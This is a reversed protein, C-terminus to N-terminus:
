ESVEEISAFAKQELRFEIHEIKGTEQNKGVSADKIAYTKGHMAIAYSATLEESDLTPLQEPRVYALWDDTMEAINPSANIDASSGEDIIADITSVIQATNGTITSYTARMLVVKEIGNPFADFVTADM